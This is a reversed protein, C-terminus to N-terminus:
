FLVMAMASQLLLLVLGGRREPKLKWAVSSRKAEILPEIIQCTIRISLGGSHGEMAIGAQQIAQQLQLQRFERM